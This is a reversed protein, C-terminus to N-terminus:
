GKIKAIDLVLAFGWIFCIYNKNPDLREVLDSRIISMRLSKKIEQQFYTAKQVRRGYLVIQQRLLHKQSSFV